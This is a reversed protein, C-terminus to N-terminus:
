CMQTSRCIASVERIPECISRYEVSGVSSGALFPTFIFHNRPSVVTIDYLDSDLESIFSAAGWGSGLVVVREKTKTSADDSSLKSLGYLVSDFVGAVKEAVFLPYPRLKKLKDMDVDQQSKPSIEGPSTTQTVLDAESTPSDDTADKYFLRTPFSSSPRPAFGHAPAMTLLLLLGINLNM